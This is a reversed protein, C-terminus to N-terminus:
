GKVIGVFAGIALEGPIVIHEILTTKPHHVIGM